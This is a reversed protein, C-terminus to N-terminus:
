WVESWASCGLPLDHMYWLGTDPHQCELAFCPWGGYHEDDNPIQSVVNAGCCVSTHTGDPLMRPVNYGVPDGKHACAPKELLQEPNAEFRQGEVFQYANMPPPAPAPGNDDGPADCGALVLLLAAFTTRM